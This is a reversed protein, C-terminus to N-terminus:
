EDAVGVNTTMGDGSKAADSLEMNARQPVAGPIGYDIPYQWWWALM